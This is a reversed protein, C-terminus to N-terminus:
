DRLFSWKGQFSDYILIGVGGGEVERVELLFRGRPKPVDYREYRWQKSAAEPPLISPLFDPVLEELSAPYGRRTERFREIAAVIRDGERISADIANKSWPDCATIALMGILLIMAIPKMQWHEAKNRNTSCTGLSM